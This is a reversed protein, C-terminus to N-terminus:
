MTMTELWILEPLSRRTAIPPSSAWASCCAASSLGYAVNACAVISRRSATVFTALARKSQSLISMWSARTAGPSTQSVDALPVTELPVATSPPPPPPLRRAAYGPGASSSAPQPLRSLSTGFYM